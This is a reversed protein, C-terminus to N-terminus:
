QSREELEQSPKENGESKSNPATTPQRASSQESNHNQKVVKASNRYWMVGLREEDSEELWKVAAAIPLDFLVKQRNNSSLDTDDVDDMSPSHIILGPKLIGVINGLKDYIELESELIGPRRSKQFGEYVYALEEFDTKPPHLTWDRKGLEQSPQIDIPSNISFPQKEACGILVIALLLTAIRFTSM